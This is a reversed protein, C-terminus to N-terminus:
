FTSRFTALRDSVEAKSRKCANLHQAWLTAYAEYDRRDYAAFAENMTRLVEAHWFDMQKKIEELERLRFPDRFARAVSQLLKHIM